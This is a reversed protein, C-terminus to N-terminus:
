PSERTPPSTSARHRLDAHLAGAIHAVLAQAQALAAPNEAPAQARVDDLTIVTVSSLHAAAPELDRHLALDIVMLPWPQGARAAALQHASIVVGEGGSCAYVVDARALASGLDELTLPAIGYLEGFDRARGSPSFVGLLTAGRARLATVGTAALQGTGVLLVQSQAFDVAPAALDLAVTAVSRRSTGIGTAAAVDRSTRIAHEFLRTLPGSATRDSQAQKLARRVQGSIEQEGVVMSDLSAAVTCLHTVADRETLTDLAQQAQSVPMSCRRSLAAVAAHITDAPSSTDLYLEFRNCTSLTIAGHVTGDAVLDRALDAAALSVQEVVRLPRTRYSAILAVLM